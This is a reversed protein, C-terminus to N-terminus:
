DFVVVDSGLISGDSSTITYSGQGPATSTVTKEIPVWGDSVNVTGSFVTETTNDPKTVTVVISVSEGEPMGGIPSNYIGVLGTYTKNEKGKSVVISVSSGEDVEEGYSPSSSIVKGEAVSDSFAETAGGFTLNYQLITNQADASTMGVLQPVKVKKVEKGKSAYLIVSDGKKLKTGAAPDTRLAINSDYEDNFEYIVDAITLGKVGLKTRAQDVTLGKIDDVTVEEAQAVKVRIVDGKKGKEGAKPSQEFVHGDEVDTNAEKLVSINFGYERAKQEADAQTLDYLSPVEVEENETESETTPEPTETTETAETTLETTSETGGKGSFLGAARGIIFFIVVVLILAGVIGLVMMVKELAPNVNDGDEDEDFEDRRRNNRPYQSGSGGRSGNGGNGGRGNGGAGNGAGGRVGQGSGGAGNGGVGGRVGGGAGNGGVGGTGNSGAAYASRGAMGAGAMAGAAGAAGAAGQRVRNINQEDLVVTQDNAPSAMSAAGALVVYEGDPHTLVKRLDAILERASAYRRDPKKQTCKLIIKEFSRPISPELRRPPVMEGQIHLLAVAVNTEGEFPVKGTLMEYMTIGLSYIDSKADSYGGRAQEPSIYHVSGAANTTVTTSDAVKAIGFDTVKVKGDRSMIINQPKIDRHIIRNDHAAQLGSAIQVSINLAEKIDLKGKMEIYKKLTIGQVLEMVIYHIGNEEGVDYVNVVNPHSLGAASQAEVRFKKVFTADVSFEHKLVKVAVLRNLKHDKAKYVDAMGGSGIKEIMEYRDALYMGPVVM